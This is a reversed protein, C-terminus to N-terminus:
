CLDSGSSSSFAILGFIFFIIVFIVDMVSKWGLKECRWAVRASDADVGNFCIVVNTPKSTTMSEM